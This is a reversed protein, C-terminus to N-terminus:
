RRVHRGDSGMRPGRPLRGSAGRARGFRDELLRRARRGELWGLGGRLFGRLNDPCLTEDAVRAFQEPTVADLQALEDEVNVARERGCLLRDAGLRGAIARTDDLQSLVHLQYRRKHLELEQKGPRTRRFDELAELVRDLTVMFRERRVNLYVYV